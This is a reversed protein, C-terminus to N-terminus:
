KFHHCLAKKVKEKCSPCFYYGKKDTDLISNSFFMVCNPNPCHPLGLVHGMEHVAETYVRKLYIEENQPLNYFSNHLRKTSIIASKYYASAIGFVFNLNQAYLDEKTIELVADNPTERFYILSELLTDALYQNRFANYANKPIPISGKYIVEIKFIEKLVRSLKQILYPSKFEFTKLIIRNICM